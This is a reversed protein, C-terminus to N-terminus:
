LFLAHYISFWYLFLGIILLVASLMVFMSKTRRIGIARVVMERATPTEQVTPTFETIWTPQLVGAVATAGSLIIFLFGLLASGRAYMPLNSSQLLLVSSIASVIAVLQLISSAHSHSVNIQQAIMSFAKYGDNKALSLIFDAEKSQDRSAVKSIAAKSTKKRSKQPDTDSLPFGQSNEKSM